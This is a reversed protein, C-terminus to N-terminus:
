KKAKNKPIKYVQEKAEKLLGITFSDDTLQALEDLAKACIERENQSLNQANDKCLSLLRNALTPRLYGNSQFARRLSEFNALFDEASMGAAEAEDDFPFNESFSVVDGGKGGNLNVSM